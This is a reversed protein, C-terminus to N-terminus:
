KLKVCPLISVTGIPNIRKWLTSSNISIAQKKFHDRNIMKSRIERTIWPVSGKNRVRRSMIPAHKDLVDLFLEKWLNWKQDVNCLTDVTDWPQHFLYNQFAM